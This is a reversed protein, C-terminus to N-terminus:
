IALLSAFGRTHPGPTKLLCVSQFVSRSTIKVVATADRHESRSVRASNGDEPMEESRDPSDTV